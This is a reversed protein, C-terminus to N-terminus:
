SSRGRATVMRMACVAAQGFSLGGDNAPVLRHQLVALGRRRLESEVRELLIRNQLAGGSLAVSGVGRDAALEAALRAVADALGRHFRAAVVGPPVGARLDALLAPWLPGPDLVRPVGPRVAFPYGGVEDLAPGRSPADVSAPCAAFAAGADVLAELEIAAEGEYSARDRCVGVAAAVADFLRGCSSSLPTNLGRAMMTAVAEIPKDALYRWLELDAWDRRFAQLGVHAELQAVANRWPELISRTGGPMAAAALHAVREFGAYDALLFEGGWLTGDEGYGLGDLAVGLVPGAEVAWGNDALVSAIHAHHHQVAELRLGARAAWARGFRTTRYQPHRDIVLCEPRHDYLRAYLEITREFEAFTRADELDGLHQSLIAQGDKLLCITSKLEGGLALIPPADELGPPLAVPAPAYGRARRLLRPAGAMVRVVSDDVRNVIERDNLLFFDALPRLRDEADDNATCQPEDSLNGSTMVLPRDWGALLLHHLPSYPLMFGLTRQGPAVARAVRGEGAADLLVIPAATSELLAAERSDVRCYGRIVALDRAMLAFPKRYRRKRARLEAVAREDLADCALHFGGIGKLALIRGEALLRSALDIADEAGAAAPDLRAGQGDELWVRPGCAPCANPQAHFRRDAPNEYERACATCMLFVAMSTTARDYPIGRVISLRPGCHTCNTFPYRFRRDGRDDLEARCAACTAADPVVGTRVEGAMSAVIRFGRPEAPASLVTRQLSLIRALPPCEALLRGCFADRAAVPGWLRILVGAGDNRVDGALDLDHALRWVMPRFGVGQVLGRVRIQEGFFSL